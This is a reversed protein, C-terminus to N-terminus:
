LRTSKRDIRTVGAHDYGPGVIVAGCRHVAVDPCTVVPGRVSAGAPAVTEYRAIGVVRGRCSQGRRCMPGADGRAVRGLGEVPAPAQEVAEDAEVPALRHVPGG